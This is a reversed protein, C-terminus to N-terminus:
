LRSLLLDAVLDPTEMPMLHGADMELYQGAEFHQCLEEFMVTRFYGRGACVM